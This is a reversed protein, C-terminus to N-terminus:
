NSSDDTVEFNILVTIVEFSFENKIAVVAILNDKRHRLKKYYIAKDKSQKIVGDPKLLVQEIESPILRREIMRVVAHDRYTIQM